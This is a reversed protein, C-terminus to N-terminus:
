KILGKQKAYGELNDSDSIIIKEFGFTQMITLLLVAGGTIVDARKKPMCPLKEIEEVPLKLLTETMKQVDEYSIEVGTVLDSSYKDLKLYVAGLTTATGGIGYLPLNAPIKEYEGVADKAAAYLLKENKGCCDKLRVVGIDVSKAYTIEGQEQRIIETSAGGIDVVIGDGKGLAGLVGLKAEDEGSIIEVSLSRLAYIKDVLEGGNKAKRAAATAFAYVEEAGDKKAEDYFAAVADATREIAEKTLFASSVLGEGLRTTNLKKYLVKGDAVFMLRVSNSGIDIVAFKNM